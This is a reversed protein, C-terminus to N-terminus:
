QKSFIDTISNSQLAKGELRRNKKTRICGYNNESYKILIQLITQHLLLRWVSYRKKYFVTKKKERNDNQRKTKNEKPHKTSIVNDSEEEEDKEEQEKEEDQLVM